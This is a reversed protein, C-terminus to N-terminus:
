ILVMVRYRVKVFLISIFFLDVLMSESAWRLDYKFFLVTFALILHQKPTNSFAFRLLKMACVTIVLPGFSYFCFFFFFFISFFMDTLVKKGKWLCIFDKVSCNWTKIVQSFVRQFVSHSFSFISTVLMKEKEWM